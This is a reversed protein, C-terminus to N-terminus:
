NSLKCLLAHYKCSNDVRLLVPIANNYKAPEKSVTSLHTNPLYLAYSVALALTVNKLQKIQM